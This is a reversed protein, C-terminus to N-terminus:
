WPWLIYASAPVPTNSDNLRYTESQFIIRSLAVNPPLTYLTTNTYDELKLLSGPAASSANSPLSSYFPDTRVSGTAWNSQEFRIAVNVNNVETADLNAASIQYPSLSSSSNFTNNQPTILQAAVCRTLAFLATTITISWSSAM